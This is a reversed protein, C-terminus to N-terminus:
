NEQGNSGELNLADLATQEEAENLEDLYIDLAMLRYFLDKPIIITEIKDKIHEKWDTENNKLKKYMEEDSILGAWVKSRGSHIAKLANKSMESKRRHQEIAEELNM